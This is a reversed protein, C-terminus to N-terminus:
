PSLKKAANLADRVGAVYAVHWTVTHSDQYSRWLTRAKRYSAKRLREYITGLDGEGKTVKVDHTANMM